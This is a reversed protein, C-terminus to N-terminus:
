YTAQFSRQVTGKQGTSKILTDSCNDTRNGNSDAMFVTYGAGDGIDANTFSANPSPDPSVKGSCAYFIKEAGSDAAFVAAISDDVLRTIGTQNTTLIAVGLATAIITGLLLMTILLAIGKNNM